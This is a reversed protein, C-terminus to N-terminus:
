YDRIQLFGGECFEPSSSLADYLTGKWYHIGMQNVMQTAQRRAEYQVAADGGLSYAAEFLEFREWLELAAGVSYQEGLGLHEFHFRVNNYVAAPLNPNVSFVTAVGDKVVIEATYLAINSPLDDYYAHLFRGGVLSGIMNLKKHNCNTCAPVLNMAYISFEPYATKPLYHDLTAVDGRSCMPCKRLRASSLIADRLDALPGEGYLLRYNEKLAVRELETLRMPALSPNGQTADYAEYALLVQDSVSRLLNRVRVTRRRAV